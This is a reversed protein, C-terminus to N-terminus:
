ADQAADDPSPATKTERLLRKAEELQKHAGVLVLIDDAALVFEAGPNGVPKGARTIAIVTVGTRARLSTERLTKGDFVSNRPLMFTQTAALEMVRLWELRAQRDAARGRLMGYRGSRVLSIQQEIINDPIGIEKLVHAFIEISTEFEEPIVANAGLAALPEIESVYRTRALIYADPRAARAQAVVRRTVPPDNICVVVARCTALGAHALIAERAADGLIVPTETQRAKAALAPNMEVVFFPIRTAKLVSGLNQGNLGFGVIIVHDKLSHSADASAAGASGKEILTRMAITSGLPVFVAGALMSGVACITFLELRSADLLGLETIQQALVYGFESITCLGLGAALAIRGAWGGVRVGTYGAVIKLALVGAILSVVVPAHRLALQLDVLMGISVFFMANFVERFPMIEASLQHRFDTMALLLGVIAAGLAPSWGVAGAAWAGGIAAVVAFLTMTERSPGRFVVRMIWPLALKIAFFGVAVGVLSAVAEFVVSAGQSARAILPAVIMAVVVVVDQLLLIGTAVVGTPTDIEGRESLQRLVIATSSLSVALGVLASAGLPWGVIIALFATVGAITIGMQLFTALLLGGGAQLLPAPSLELGVTFLLLILGVESLEHVHTEDILSLASPGILMGAVLFGIIAPARVIRAVLLSLLAAGFLVITQTLFGM